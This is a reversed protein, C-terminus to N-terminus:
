RLDLNNDLIFQIQNEKYEREEKETMKVEFILDNIDKIHYCKLTEKRENYDVDENM